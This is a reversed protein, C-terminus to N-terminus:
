QPTMELISVSKGVAGGGGAAQAEIGAAGANHPPVPAYLSFDISYSGQWIRAM